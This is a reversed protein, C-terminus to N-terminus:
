ALPQVSIVSYFPIIIITGATEQLVVYDEGVTTVTGNVPGASTVVEVNENRLSEFTERIRRNNAIADRLFSAFEESYMQEYIYNRLSRRTTTIEERLARRTATIDQRLLQTSKALEARLRRLASNRGKGKGGGNVGTLTGRLQVQGKLKVRM